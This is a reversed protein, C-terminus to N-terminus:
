QLDIAIQAVNESLDCDKIENKQFQLPVATDKFLVKEPLACDQLDRIELDATAPLQAFAKEHLVKVTVMPNSASLTAYAIPAVASKVPRCSNFKEVGGYIVSINKPAVGTEFHLLYEQRDSQLYNCTLKENV